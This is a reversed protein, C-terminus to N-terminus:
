IEELKNLIIYFLKDLMYERDNVTIYGPFDLNQYRKRKFDKWKSHMLLIESFEEKKILRM